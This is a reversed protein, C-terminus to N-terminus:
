CYFDTSNGFGASIFADVASRLADREATLHDIASQDYLAIPDDLGFRQLYLIGEHGCGAGDVMTREAWAVPKIDNSM